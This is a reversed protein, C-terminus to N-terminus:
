NVKQGKQSWHGFRNICLIVSFVGAPQTVGLVRHPHFHQACLGQCVHLADTLKVGKEKEPYFSGQRWWLDASFSM